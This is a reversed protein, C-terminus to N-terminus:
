QRGNRDRRRRRVLRPLRRNRRFLWLGVGGIVVTLLGLGGLVVVLFLRYADVRVRGRGDGAM